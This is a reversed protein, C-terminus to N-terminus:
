VEAKVFDALVSECNGLSYLGELCARAWLVDVIPVAYHAGHQSNVEACTGVELVDEMFLTDNVSVLTFRHLMEYRGHRAIMENVFAERIM